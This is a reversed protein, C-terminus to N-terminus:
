RSNIYLSKHYSWILQNRTYNDGTATEEIEEFSYINLDFIATTAPLQGGRGDKDVDM